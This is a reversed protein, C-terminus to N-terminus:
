CAWISKAARHLTICCTLAPAQYHMIGALTIWRYHCNIKSSPFKLARWFALKGPLGPSQRMRWPTVNYRADLFNFNFWLQLQVNALAVGNQTAITLAFDNNIDFTKAINIFTNGQFQNNNGLVQTNLLSLSIDWGNYASYGLTINEFTGARYVDTEINAIWASEYDTMPNIKLRKQQLKSKAKVTKAAAFGVGSFMFAIIM